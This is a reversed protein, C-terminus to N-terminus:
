FSPISSFVSEFSFFILSSVLGTTSIGAGVVSVVSAAGVDGGGATGGVVSAAAVVVSSSRTGDSMIAPSWDVLM